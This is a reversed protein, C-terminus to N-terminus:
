SCSIDVAALGLDGTLVVRVTALVAAGKDDVARL